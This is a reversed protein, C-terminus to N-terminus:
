VVCFFFFCVALIRFRRWLLSFLFRWKLTIDEYETNQICRVATLILASQGILNCFQYFQGIFLASSKRSEIVGFYVTLLRSSDNNKDPYIPDARKKIKTNNCIKFKLPRGVSNSNGRWKLEWAMQIGMGNSNVWVIQTGVGNSNWCRLMEVSNSYGCYKFEGQQLLEWM